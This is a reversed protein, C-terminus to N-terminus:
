FGFWVQLCIIDPKEYEVYETGGKQIWARLGAVNWSAIKLNWEDNNINFDINDYNTASKNVKINTSKAPKKITQKKNSIEEKIVNKKAKKLIPEDNEVEENDKISYKLV